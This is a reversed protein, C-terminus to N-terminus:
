GLLLLAMGAKCRRLHRPRCSLCGQMSWLVCCAAGPQAEWSASVEEDMDEDEEMEGMAEWDEDDAHLMHPPDHLKWCVFPPMPQTWAAIAPGHVGGASWLM